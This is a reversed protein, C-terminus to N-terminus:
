KDMMAKLKEFPFNNEFQNKVLQSVQYNNFSWYVEILQPVYRPLNKDFYAEGGAWLVLRFGGENEDGFKGKFGWIGSGPDIIAPQLLTEENAVALYDDIHKLRKTYDANYSSNKNFRALQKHYQNKLGTLYQKQSISRWPVKGNRGLIIGRTEFFPTTRLKYVTLGQVQEVKPPLQYINKMKGDDNIDLTDAQYLFWNLHNIFIYVSTSTEDGLFLKKFNTNCYYEFFLTSFKYPVPGNPIYSQGRISRHWRPEFGSLDTFIEKMLKYISDIRAYIPKYQARPFTKDPFVLDDETKKWSGKRGFISDMGGCVMSQQQHHAAMKSPAQALSNFSATCYLLIIFITKM